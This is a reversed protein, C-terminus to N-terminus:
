GENVQVGFSEMVIWSAEPLLVKEATALAPLSKNM